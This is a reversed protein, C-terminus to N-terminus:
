LITVKQKEASADHNRATQRWSWPLDGAALPVVDGRKEVFNPTEM